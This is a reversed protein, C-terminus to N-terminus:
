GTAEPRAPLATAPKLGRELVDGLSGCLTTKSLSTSVLQGARAGMDALESAPADAAHRLVRVAEDSDGHKVQWGVSHSAILDSVHCPDPGLLLIPRSVTAPQPLARSFGVNRARCERATAALCALASLM